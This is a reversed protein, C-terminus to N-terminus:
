LHEIEKKLELVRSEIETKRIEALKFEKLVNQNYLIWNIKHVFKELLETNSSKMYTYGNGVRTGTQDIKFFDLRYGVTIYHQIEQYVSEKINEEV